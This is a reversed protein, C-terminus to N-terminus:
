SNRQYWTLDQHKTHTYKKWFNKVGNITITIEPISRSRTSTMTPTVADDNSFVSTFQTNLINAKEKDDTHVKGRNDRIPSVGINQM